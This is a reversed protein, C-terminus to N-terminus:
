LSSNRASRWPSAQTFFLRIAPSSLFYLTFGEHVYFLAAAWPGQDGGTALTMVCIDLQGFRASAFALKTGDPSFM